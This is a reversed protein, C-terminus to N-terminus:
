LADEAGTDRPAPRDLHLTVDQPPDSTLFRRLVQIEGDELRVELFHATQGASRENPSIATVYTPITEVGRAEFWRYHDFFAAAVKLRQMQEVIIEHENSYGTTINKADKGRPDYPPIHSFLLARPASANVAPLNKLWRFSAFNRERGNEVMVFRWGGFEFDQDGRGFIAAHRKLKHFAALSHDDAPSPEDQERYEIEGPMLFTPVKLEALRAQFTLIKDPFARYYNDGLGIVFDPLEENVIEQLRYFFFDGNRAHGFIFFRVLGEDRPAHELTLLQRSGPPVEMEFHIASPGAAEFELARVEEASEPRALGLRVASPNVNAATFNFAAPKGGRNEFEWTSKPALARLELNMGEVRRIIGGRAEVRSHLPLSVSTRGGTLGEPVGWWADIVFGFTFLFVGAAFLSFVTALQKQM